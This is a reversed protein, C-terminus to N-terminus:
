SEVKALEQRELEAQRKDERDFRRLGNPRTFLLIAATVLALLALLLSWDGEDGAVEFRIMTLGLVWPVAASRIVISTAEIRDREDRVTALRRLAAYTVVAHLGLVCLAAGAASPSPVSAGATEDIGGPFTGPMLALLALWIAVVSGCVVALIARPWLEPPISFRWQLREQPGMSWVQLLVFMAAATGMVFDSASEFPVRDPWIVAAWFAAWGALWGIRRLPRPRAALRLVGVVFLCTFLSVFISGIAM